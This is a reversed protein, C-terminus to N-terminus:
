ENKDEGKEEVISNSLEKVCRTCLLSFSYDKTPLRKLSFELDNNLVTNKCRECKGFLFLYYFNVFLLVVILLLIIIIYVNM